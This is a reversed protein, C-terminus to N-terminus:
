DEDDKQFSYIIMVSFALLLNILILGPLHRKIKVVPKSKKHKSARPKAIFTPRLLSLM